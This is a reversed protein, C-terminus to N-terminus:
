DENVKVEIDYTPLAKILLKHLSAQADTKEKSSLKKDTTATVWMDRGNIMVADPTFEKTDLIVQKAKEIERAYNRDSGTNVLNPNQDSMTRGPLEDGSQIMNTGANQKDEVLENELAGDCGTVM